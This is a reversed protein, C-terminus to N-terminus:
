EGKLKFNECCRRDPYTEMYDGDEDPFACINFSVWEGDKPSKCTRMHACGACRKQIYEKVQKEYREDIVQGFEDILMGSESRIFEYTGADESLTGCGNQLNYYQVGAYEGDYVNLSDHVYSGVLHIAGTCKDIVYLDTLM